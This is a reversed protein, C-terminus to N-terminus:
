TKKGYAAEKGTEPTTMPAADDRPVSRLEPTTFYRRIRSVIRYFPAFPSYLQRHLEREVRRVAARGMEILEKKRSFDFSTVKPYITIEIDPEDIRRHERTACAIGFARFFILFGNPLDEPKLNEHPSINVAVVRKFGKMRAIRVPMNNLICGDSLLMGDREVPSFIGPVAMSARISEAIPGSDLTVEEARLIDTANCAFPLVTDAFTKESTLTRLLSLIKKGSDAGNGTLMAALAEQAQIFRFLPADGLQFSLGELLKMIDFDNLMFNEMEAVPMGSAYIGGIIAGISCGVIMGPKMGLEEFAKLVGIHTIGKGGGGSLVLAWKTRMAEERRGDAPRRNNDGIAILM